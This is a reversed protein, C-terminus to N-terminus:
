NAHVLWSKVPMSRIAIICIIYVYIIYITEGATPESLMVAESEVRERVQSGGKLRSM